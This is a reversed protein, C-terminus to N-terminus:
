FASIIEGDRRNALWGLIQPSISENTLRVSTDGFLLHVGGPHPSSFGGVYLPNKKPLPGAGAGFMGAGRNTANLKTAANRLTARTGSIWGLSFDVKEGVFITHSSGDPIDLYRVSSNLFFVGNQDVDIPADQLQGPLGPAVAGDHHCGAYGSPGAAGPPLRMSPCLLLAIQVGRMKVNNEHYVGVKFDIHDFINKEDFYPLVQAIWSMHYGQEVDQIPGTPNVSGPPLVEHAMEYNQLAVGLQMLNNKCASRRAVERAQQVAPLSLSILISIIAIVVLLEILTFARRHHRRPTPNTDPM